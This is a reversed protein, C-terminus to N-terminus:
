WAWRRWARWIIRPLAAAWAAVVEEISRPRELLLGINRVRNPEGVTEFFEACQAVRTDRDTMHLRNKM